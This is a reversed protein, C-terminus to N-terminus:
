EVLSDRYTRALEEGAIVDEESFGFHYFFQQNEQFLLLINEMSSSNCLNPFQVEFGLLDRNILVIMALKVEHPSVSPFLETANENIKNIVELEDLVDEIDPMKHVSMKKLKATIVLYDAAFYFLLFVVMSLGMIALIIINM